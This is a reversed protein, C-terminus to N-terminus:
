HIKLGFSLINYYEEVMNEINYNDIVFKRNMNLLVAYDNVSLNKIYNICDNIAKTSKLAFRLNSNRVIDKEPEIDSVIVPRGYAYAELVVNPTGEAYSPLVVLDAMKYQESMDDIYGLFEIREQLEWRIIYNKMKMYYQHDEIVGAFVINGNFDPYDRMFHLLMMQNKHPKIRGPVLVRLINTNDKIQYRNVTPKGNKIYKVRKGTIKELEKKAYKSNSTVQNCFRM